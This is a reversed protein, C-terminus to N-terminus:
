LQDSVRLTVESLLLNELREVIVGFDYKQKVTEVARLGIKRAKERDYMLDAVAEAMENADDAILIDEGSIVDLGECGITTSVVVRGMAMAELIKIRTGAGFRVPCIVVAADALYYRVDAVQGTIVVARDEKLALIDPPPNKGVVVLRAKPCSKLIIPFVQVYFFLVGDRNPPYAMNGVFVIDFSGKNENSSKFYSTDVGNPVVYLKPHGALKRLYCADTESAVLCTVGSMLLKREFRSMKFKEFRYLLSMPWKAYKIMRGYYLSVADTLDVVVKEKSFVSAYASMKTQYIFALDYEEDKVLTTLAKEMRVDIRSAVTFPLHLNCLVGFFKGILSNNSVAITKVDEILSCGFHILTVDHKKSLGNIFHLLRIKDGQDPKDPIGEILILLKM